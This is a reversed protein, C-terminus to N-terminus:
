FNFSKPELGLEVTKNQNVVHDQAFESVERLSLKRMYLVSIIIDVRGVECPQQLSWILTISIM